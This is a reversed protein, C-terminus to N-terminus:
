EQKQEQEQGEKGCLTVQKGDKGRGGGIIRHSHSHSHKDWGTGRKEERVGNTPDNARESTRGSREWGEMRDRIWRSVGGGMGGGVFVLEVGHERYATDVVDTSDM